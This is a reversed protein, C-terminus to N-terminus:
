RRRSRSRVRDRRFLGSRSRRDCRLSSRAARWRLGPGPARSPRLPESPPLRTAHRLPSVNGPVQEPDREPEYYYPGGPAGPLLKRLELGALKARHPDPCGKRPDVVQAAEPRHHRLPRRDCQQRERARANGRVADRRQALARLLLDRIRLYVEVRPVVERNRLGLDGVLFRDENLCGVAGEAHLQSLSPAVLIPQSEGSFAKIALAVEVHDQLNAVSSSRIVASRQTRAADAPKAHKKLRTQGKTTDASGDSDV